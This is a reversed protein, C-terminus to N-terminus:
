FYRWSCPANEQRCSKSAKGRAPCDRDEVGHQSLMLLPGASGYLKSKKPFLRPSVAPALLREPCLRGQLWSWEPSLGLGVECCM